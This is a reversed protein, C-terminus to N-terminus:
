SNATTADIPIHFLEGYYFVRMSHNYAESPLKFKAQQQVSRAVDSGPLEIEEVTVPNPDHLHTKGQLYVKPDRSIATFGHLRIANERSM